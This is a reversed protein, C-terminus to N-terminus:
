ACEGVAGLGSGSKHRLDDADDDRWEWYHAKKGEITSFPGTPLGTAFVEVQWRAHETPPASLPPSGILSRESSNPPSLPPSGLPADFPRGHHELEPTLGLPADLGRSALAVQALEYQTVLNPYSPSTALECWTLLSEPLVTLREGIGPVASGLEEAMARAAAVQSRDCRLGIM